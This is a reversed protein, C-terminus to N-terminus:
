TKLVSCEGQINRIQTLNLEINLKIFLLALRIELPAFVGVGGFSVRDQNDTLSVFLLQTLEM